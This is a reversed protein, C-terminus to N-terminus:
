KNKNNWENILEICKNNEIFNEINREQHFETLNNSITASQTNIFEKPNERFNLIETPNLELNLIGQNFGSEYYYSIYIKKEKRSEYVTHHFKKFSIIKLDNPIDQNEHLDSNVIIKKSISSDNKKSISGKKQVNTSKEKSVCIFHRNFIGGFNYNIWENKEILKYQPLKELINERMDQGRILGLKNSSAIDFFHMFQDFYLNEGEQYNRKNFDNGSNSLLETEETSIWNIIGMSDPSFFSENEIISLIEYGISSVKPNLRSFLGGKGCSLHPYFDACYKFIYYEFFSDFEYYYENDNLYKRKEDWSEISDYIKHTRFTPDFLNSIKIIESVSKEIQKILESSSLKSIGGIKYSKLFEKYDNELSGKEGRLIPVRNEYFENIDFLHLTNWVGM